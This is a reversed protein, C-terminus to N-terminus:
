CRAIAAQRASKYGDAGEASLDDIRWGAPTRMLKLKARARSIVDPAEAKPHADSREECGFLDTNGSCGVPLGTGM